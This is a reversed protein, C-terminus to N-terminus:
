RGSLIAKACKLREVMRIAEEADMREQGTLGSRDMEWLQEQCRKLSETVAKRVSKM